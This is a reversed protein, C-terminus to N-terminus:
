AGTTLSLTFTDVVLATEDNRVSVTLTETVAATSSYGFKLTDNTFVTGITVPYVQASLNINHTLSNNKYVYLRSTSDAVGSVSVSLAVDTTISTITQNSNQVEVGDNAASINAWNASFSIVHGATNLYLKSSNQALTAFHRLFNKM